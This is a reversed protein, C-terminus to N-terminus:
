FIAILLAFLVSLTLWVIITIIIEIRFIINEKLNFRNIILNLIKSILYYILPITWISVLAFSISNEICSGVDINKAGSDHNTKDKFKYPCEGNPHDHAPYGHHYHYGGNQRDHHGGQSDTRGGHALATNTFCLFSFLVFIILMLTKSLISIKIKM